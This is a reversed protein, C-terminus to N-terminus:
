SKGGIKNRGAGVEPSASQAKKDFYGIYERDIARILYLLDSRDQGHHEAYQMVATWPIPSTGYMSAPRCTSLECFAAYFPALNPFLTPANKLWQPLPRGTSYM